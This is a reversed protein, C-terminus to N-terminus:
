HCTMRRSTGHQYHTSQFWVLCSLCPRASLFQGIFWIRLRHYNQHWCMDAVFEVISWNWLKKKLNTKGCQPFMNKTNWTLQQSHFSVQLKWECHCEVNSEIVRRSTTWSFISIWGSKNSRFSDIMAIIWGVVLYKIDAIYDPTFNFKLNDVSFVTDHISWGSVM